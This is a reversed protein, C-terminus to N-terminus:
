ILKSIFDITDLNDAYEDLLPLQAKGFTRYKKQIETCNIKEFQEIEEDSDYETFGIEGIQSPTRNGKKLMFFHGNIIPIEEMKALAIGRKISNLYGSHSIHEKLPATASLFRDWNYGKPVFLYSVSRCGLGFYLFIDLALQSLEIDTENGSLVAFSFRSGRLLLPTNSFENKISSITSDSGTAILGKLENKERSLYEKIHPTFIVRDQWIPNIRFLINLIAPFLHKDKSSLKIVAKTGYAMVSLFDHFGVVPINGAMIIGIKNPYFREKIKYKALWNTLNDRNLFVNAIAAIANKQMFPTFFPNELESLSLARDLAIDKSEGNLWLTLKQGLASFDDIFLSKFM